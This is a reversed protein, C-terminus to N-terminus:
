SRFVADAAKRSAEKAAIDQEIRGIEARYIEIRARLEEVSLTALSEGPQASVPKRPRDEDFISM